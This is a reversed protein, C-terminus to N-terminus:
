EVDQEPQELPIVVDEWLVAEAQSLDVPKEFRVSGTLGTGTDGTTMQRSDAKIESGDKMRLAMRVRPWPDEGELRYKWWIGLPSVNMSVLTMHKEGQTMVMGEVQPELVQDKNLDEPIPIEWLDTPGKEPDWGGFITEYEGDAMERQLRRLQYTSGGVDYSVMEELVGVLVNPERTGAELVTFRSSGAAIEGPHEARWKDSPRLGQLLNLDDEPHFVTGEPARIELVLYLQNKAGLISLPTVTVGGHEAPPPLFSDAKEPEPKEPEEGSIEMDSIIEQQRQDLGGFFTIWLPASVAVATVALVIVAIAVAAGRTIGRRLMPREPQRREWGWPDALLRMRQRLYRPSFDPERSDARELVSEYQALNADMLGQRLLVDFQRM